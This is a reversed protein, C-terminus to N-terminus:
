QKTLILMIRTAMLVDSMHCLTSFLTMSTTSTSSKFDFDFFKLSLIFFGVQLTSARKGIQSMSVSSCKARALVKLNLQRWGISTAM